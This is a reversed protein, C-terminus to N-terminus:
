PERSRYIALEEKARGPKPDAVVKVRRIFEIYHDPLGHETAGRLVHERYWDYVSLGPRKDTALYALAIMEGEATVIRLAEARYGHGLAEARDLAPRDATDVAFVVGYARDAASGTSECDCKGSRDRSGFKDFALRYGAVHGVTVFRASPARDARTLRRTSMNSGYAFYLFTSM